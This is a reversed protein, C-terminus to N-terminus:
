STTCGKGVDLELFKEDGRVSVRHRNAAVGWDVKARGRVVVSRGETGM